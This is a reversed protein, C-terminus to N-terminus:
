DHAGRPPVRDPNNPDAIVCHEWGIAEQPPHPLIDTAIHWGALTGLYIRPLWEDHEYNRVWARKREDGPGPEPWDWLPEQGELAAVRRELDNLRDRMESPPPPLWAM